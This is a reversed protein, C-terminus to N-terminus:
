KKPEDNEVPKPEPLLEADAHLRTGLAANLHNLARWYDAQSSLSARVRERYARQADLVSLLTQGKENYAARIRDRYERASKLTAPDDATITALAVRYTELTQEVEARLDALDAQLTMFKNRLDSMAKAIGGQNRDTFPLGTTLWLDVTPRGSLGTYFKTQQYSVGTQFSLQPYAKREESAVAAQAREIDRRDSLIDPRNQEALSLADVLAPPPLTASVGLEGAVDFNPDPRLRGLLPRLKSRAAFLTLERRRVERQSDYVALRIRDLDVAAGGGLKIREAIIKEIQKLEDLDEQFLKLLSKAELVDYVADLTAAIQKRVADAYDAAAVDVGLRSAEMAAVRKGYVYWDLPFSVQADYQPPGINPNDRFVNNNTLFQRDLQLSPNPIISSTTLDARAAQVKEMGVRLRLNYVITEQIVDALSVVSPRHLADPAYDPSREGAAVSKFGAQYVPSEQPHVTLGIDDRMFAPIPETDYIPTTACGGLAAIAPAALWRLVIRKALGRGAGM